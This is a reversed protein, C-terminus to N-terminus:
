LERDRDIRIYIGSDRKTATQDSTTKVRYRRDYRSVETPKLLLQSVNYLQRTM